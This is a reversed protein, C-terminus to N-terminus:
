KTATDGFLVNFLNPSTGPTEANAAPKARRARTKRAAKDPNAAAPKAIEPPARAPEQSRAVPLETSSTEGIDIPITVSPTEAVSGTEDDPAAESAGAPLKAFLAGGSHQAPKGGSLERLRNLEDARRLAARLLFQKWEPHGAPEILAGRAPLAGAPAVYTRLTAALALGTLLAMLVACFGGIILRLGPLM